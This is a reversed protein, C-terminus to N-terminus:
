ETPVNIKLGKSQTFCEAWITVQCLPRWMCLFSDDSDGVSGFSVKVCRCGSLASTHNDIVGSRKHKWINTSVKNSIRDPTSTLIGLCIIGGVILIAVLLLGAISKGQAHDRFGVDSIPNSLSICAFFGASMAMCVRVVM